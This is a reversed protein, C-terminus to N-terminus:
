GWTLLSNRLHAHEHDHSWNLSPGGIKVRTSSFSSNDFQTCSCMYAM